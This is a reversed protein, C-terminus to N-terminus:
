DDLVLNQKKLADILPTIKGDSIFGSFESKKTAIESISGALLVDFIRWKNEDFLLLYSISVEEKDVLLVTKVLTFNEGVKKSEKYNFTPNKIKKFRNFYNKAIYEQFIIVIEEQEKKITKKWTDGIIKAIMKEANYTNKILNVLDTPSNASKESVKKLGNHLNNVVEKPSNSNKIEDKNKIKKTLQKTESKPQTKLENKSVVKKEKTQSKTSKLLDDKANQKNKADYIEVETNKSTEDSKYSNKEELQTSIKEKNISELVSYEKISFLIIILFLFLVGSLFHIKKIKKLYSFLIESLVQIKKEKKLYSFLSSILKLM